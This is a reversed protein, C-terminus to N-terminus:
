FFVFILNIKLEKDPNFLINEIGRGNGDSYDIKSCLRRRGSCRVMFQNIIKGPINGKGGWAGVKKGNM